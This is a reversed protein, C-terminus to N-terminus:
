IEGIEEGTYLEVGTFITDSNYANYGVLRATSLFGNVLDISQSEIGGSVIFGLKSVLNYWKGVKEAELIYEQEAERRLGYYNFANDLVLAINEETVLTANSIKLTNNKLGDYSKNYVVKSDNYIKGRIVVNQYSPVNVRVFNLGSDVVTAGNVTLETTPNTFEIENIGANLNGEFITSAETEKVYRHTTISIDSINEKLKISSGNEFVRNQEIRSEPTSSIRYINIKDSRSCDAVARNAFCVQQLAERHTCVPIYGYIPIPKLEDSITYSTFDASTMIEGVVQELTEGTYIKGKKFNTKGIRGIADITNFSIENENKTDFKDLYFTGMNKDVGNVTEIVAVKSGPEIYQYFGKPNLLNFSDDNNFLTFTFKNISLESSIMNLEELVTASSISEKNQIVKIGFDMSEVKIRSQPFTANIFYIEAKKFGSVKNICTFFDRNDTTFNMDTILVNNSDFWKIRIKQPFADKFSFSFGNTTVPDPFTVYIVPKEADLIVCNNDSLQSSVLCFGADEKVEPMFQQTGDLCFQNLELTAYNSVANNEIKVNGIDAFSLSKSSTPVSDDRVTENSFNIIIKCSTKRM